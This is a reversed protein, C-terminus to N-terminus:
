VNCRVFQHHITFNILKDCFLIQHCHHSIGQIDSIRYLRRAALSSISVKLLFVEFAFALWFFPWLYKLKNSGTLLDKLSREWHYTDYYKNITLIFKCSATVNVELFFSESDLSSVLGSLFICYSHPVSLTISNTWFSAWSPIVSALTSGLALPTIM